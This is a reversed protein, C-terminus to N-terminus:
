VPHLWIPQAGNAKTALYDRLVRLTLRSPPDRLLIPQVIPDAPFQQEALGAVLVVLPMAPGGASLQRAIAEAGPIGRSLAAEVVLAATPALVLPGGDLSCTRAGDREFLGRLPLVRPPSAIILFDTAQGTPQAEMGDLM